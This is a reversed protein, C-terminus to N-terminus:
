LSAAGAASTRGVKTMSRLDEAKADLKAILTRSALSYHEALQAHSERVRQDNARLAAVVEVDARRLLYEVEGFDERRIPQEPELPTPSIM